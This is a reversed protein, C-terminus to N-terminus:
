RQQKALASVSFATDGRLWRELPEPGALAEALASGLDYVNKDLGAELFAFATGDAAVTMALKTEPHSGSAAELDEPNQYARECISVKTSHGIRCASPRGPHASCKMDRLMPCARVTRLHEELTLGAVAAAHAQARALVALREEPTFNQEIWDALAFVDHARADIKGLFCCTGCGAKCDVKVSYDAFLQAELANLREHARLTAAHLDAATQAQALDAAAADRFETALALLDERTM